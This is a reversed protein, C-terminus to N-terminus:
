NNSVNESRFVFFLANVFKGALANLVEEANERVFDNKDNSLVSLATLLGKHAIMKVRNRPFSAQEYFAKVTWKLVETVKGYSMTVLTQLLEQHCSDKYRVYTAIKKVAMAAVVALKDERCALSSLTVLLGPHRGIESATAQCILNCIIRTANICDQSPVIRSTAVQLLTDLVVCNKHQVMIVKNEPSTALCGLTQLSYSKAVSSGRSLALVADLWYQNNGQILHAKNRAELALNMVIRASEERVAECMHSSGVAISEMLGPFAFMVLKNHEHESLSAIMKMSLHMVFRGTVGNINGVLSSLLEEQGRVMSLPVRAQCLKYIVNQALVLSKADGRKGLRYNIEILELLDLTLTSGDTCFSACLREESCRYLCLIITLCNQIEKSRAIFYPSCSRLISCLFAIAGAKIDSDHKRPDNHNFEKAAAILLKLRDNNNKARTVDAITVFFLVHNLPAINAFHLTSYIVFSYLLKILNSCPWCWYM